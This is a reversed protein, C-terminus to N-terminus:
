SLVTNTSPSRVLNSDMYTAKDFREHRQEGGTSSPLRIRVLTHRLPTEIQLGPQLSHPWGNRAARRAELPRAQVNLPILPPNRHSDIGLQLTFLSVNHPASRPRRRM